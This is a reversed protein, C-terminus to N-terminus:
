ADVERKVVSLFIQELSMPATEFHELPLDLALTKKLFDRPTIGDALYITQKGNGVEVQSVEPWDDLPLLPSVDIAKPAFEKKIDALTGYLVVQGQNILALRECLVEVQNLQHTSLIITKGAVQLQRIMDKVLVVNVPDLGQFPEDLVVVDPDHVLSAIIQVKQHMGHSLEKVKRHGWASLEIQALLEDVRKKATEGSLGKLKGLYILCETVSLERYLGREEPLYGVRRRMVDPSHGMVRVTGEDAKIIDMLMRIITTKGAGNPGLLGFIEGQNVQFSVHDVAVVTHYVKYLQDIWIVPETM